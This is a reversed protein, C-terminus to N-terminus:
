QVCDGLRGRGAVRLGEPEPLVAALQCSSTLVSYQTHLDAPLLELLSGGLSLKRLRQMAPLSLLAAVGTSEGLVWSDGLDLAVLQSMGTLVEPHLGASDQLGLSRLDTLKSFCPTSVNTVPTSVMSLDLATLQQLKAISNVAGRTLLTCASAPPKLTMELLGSLMSLGRLAAAPVEMKRMVLRTLQVLKSLVGPPCPAAPGALNPTLDLELEQLSTLSGLGKLAAPRSGCCVRCRSLNLSTLATLAATDIGASGKCPGFRLRLLRQLDLVRLQSGPPLQLHRLSPRGGAPAGELRLEQLREGQTALAALLGDLRAQTLKKYSLSTITAPAAARWAKCVAACDNMRPKRQACLLVQALLEEPLSQMPSSSSAVNAAATAAPAEAQASAALTPTPPQMQQQQRPTHYHM